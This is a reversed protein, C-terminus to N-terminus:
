QETAMEHLVPTYLFYNNKDFLAIDIGEDFIRRLFFVTYLGAFGGGVTGIRLNSAM